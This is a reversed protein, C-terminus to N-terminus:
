KLFLESIGKKAYKLIDMFDNRSYYGNALSTTDAENWGWAYAPYLCTLEDTTHGRRSAIETLEELGPIEVRWAEDDSLHLHLVNM